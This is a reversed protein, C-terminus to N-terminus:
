INSIIKFKAYKRFDIRIMVMDFALLTIKIRCIGAAGQHAEGGGDAAHQPDQHLAVQLGQARDGPGCFGCCEAVIAVVVVIDCNTLIM